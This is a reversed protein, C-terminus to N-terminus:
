FQWDSHAFAWIFWVLVAAALVFPTIVGLWLAIRSRRPLRGGYRILAIIGGIALIHGFLSAASASVVSAFGGIVAWGAGTAFMGAFYWGLVQLWGPRDDSAPGPM